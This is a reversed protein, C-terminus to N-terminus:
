EFFSHICQSIYDIEEETLEPFMPLSLIQHQVRAAVPFDKEAYELHHYADLFPLASPYQITTSIGKKDLFKKLEDRKETRIVYLHFVHRYGAKVEPLVLPLGRLKDSYKEAIQIRKETM